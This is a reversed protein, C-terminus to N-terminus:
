LLSGPRYRAIVSKVLPSLNPYALPKEADARVTKSPDLVPLAELETEDFGRAAFGHRLDDDVLLGSGCDTHHIV